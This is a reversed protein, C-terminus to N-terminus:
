DACPRVLGNALVAEVTEPSGPRCLHYSQGMRCGLALLEREQAASEIGEAVSEMGLSAALQIIARVINRNGPQEGLRHIFSQDIKLVDIPFRQLYGLSSYGTGFDDLYIKVGLAKIRELMEKTTEPRGMLMGETMELALQGPDIGSREIAKSIEVTLSPEAFQRAGLNISIQLRRGALKRNWAATQACAEHLVQIGIPALLGMEEAMNIFQSASLIGRAPHNWRILAEAGLAEGTKLDFIPQYHLFLERRDLARRLETEMKLTGSAPAHLARDYIVHRAKGLDKARHMAIDAFRILDNGTNAEADSLGIGMSVSSFVEHGQVSFPLQLLQQLRDAFGVAEAAGSIDELLIIFEDGGFRAFTDGPPLIAEVRRAFAVLLEDGCAHGLNDNVVKFRDLDLVIVAFRYDERRQRHAFSRALHDQFLARNPLGTLPDRFASHVLQREAIHRETFDSQAGAIRRSEGSVPDVQKVGRALMWRYSGDRHRVRHENVFQPTLGDLHAKLDGELRALDEEHVRDLWEGPTNGIEDDSYGLAAKWRPSFYVSNDVLNWDWLGDNAAGVALAYREESAKLEEVARERDAALRAHEIIIGLQRGLLSYFAVEDPPFEHYRQTHDLRLVGIPHNRTIIPVAVTSKLKLHEVWEQAILDTSRCDNVVVARVEAFCVGSISYGVPQPASVMNERLHQVRILQGSILSQQQEDYLLITARDLGLYRPILEYLQQLLAELQTQREFAEYFECLLALQQARVMPDAGLAELPLEPRQDPPPQM